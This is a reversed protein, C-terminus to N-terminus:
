LFQLTLPFFFCVPLCFLNSVNHYIWDPLNDSDFGMADLASNGRLTTFAAVFILSVIGGSKGMASREKKSLGEVAAAGYLGGYSHMLLVIDKGEGLLPLLVDERLYKTDPNTPPKSDDDPYSSPIECIAEYSREKFAQILPHFFEVLPWAGPAIVVTFGSSFSM